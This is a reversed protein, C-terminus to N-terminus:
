RYVQRMQRLAPRAQLELFQRIERSLGGNANSIRFDESFANVVLVANGVRFAATHAWGAEQWASSTVAAPSTASRFLGRITPPSDM